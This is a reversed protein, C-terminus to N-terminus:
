MCFWSTKQPGFWCLIITSPYHPVLSQLLPQQFKTKGDCSYILNFYFFTLNYWKKCYKQDFAAKILM